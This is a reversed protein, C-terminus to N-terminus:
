NMSSYPPTLTITCMSLSTSSMQSHEAEAELGKPLFWTRNKIEGDYQGNKKLTQGMGRTEGLYETAM